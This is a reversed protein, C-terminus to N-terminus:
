NVLNFEKSVLHGLMKYSTLPELELSWTSVSLEGILLVVSFRGVVM